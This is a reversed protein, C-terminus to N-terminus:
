LSVDNGAVLDKELKEPALDRWGLSLVRRM